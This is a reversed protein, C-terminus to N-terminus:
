SHFNRRRDGDREVYFEWWLWVGNKMRVPWWAFRLKWDSM